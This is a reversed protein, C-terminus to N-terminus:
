GALESAQRSQWKAARTMWAGAVLALLMVALLVVGTPLQGSAVRPVGHVMAATGLLVAGPAAIAVISSGVLWSVRGRGAPLTRTIRREEAGAHLWGLGGLVFGCLALWLGGRSWSAVAGTLFGVSSLLAGHGYVMRFFLARRRPELIESGFLFRAVRVAVHLLGVLCVALGWVSYAGLAVWTTVPVEHVTAGAGRVILGLLLWAVVAPVLWAAPWRWFGQGPRSALLLLLLPTLLSVALALNLVLALGASLASSAVVLPELFTLSPNM